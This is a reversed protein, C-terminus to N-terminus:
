IKKMWDLLNGTEMIEKIIESQNVNDPILIYNGEKQSFVDWESIEDSYQTLGSL